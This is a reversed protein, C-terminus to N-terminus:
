KYWGDPLAEKEIEFLDHIIADADSISNIIPDTMFARRLLRRDQRVIAEVTLDHADIVQMQMARLGLPFEGAKRPRPGNMDIDCLLELFADAPLNSVADGNFTNIYFQKGNGTWMTEIVDVAHDSKYRSHFEDMSREGSIYRDIEDWMGAMQRQRLDADFISLPAPKEESVSKNQWFPVYEKTHDINTPIKGFLEWLMYAYTNNYSEKSDSSTGERLSLKRIGEAILGMVDEGDYRADLLWNFHNVGAITMDFRDIDANKIGTLNLYKEKVGPMHHTDCLAFSNVKSYRALGLGNIAVPNIYNIVWADPCLKEVDKAIDLIVPLERMARFIGGPGITDGSCMRVGYKLSIECDVGRFYIGKNSFSLIVFDAGKLAERYDCSGELKTDTGISDIAMRALKMMKDLYTRNTDVLSITGKSLAESHVVSWIFQRGFFMSGAGILVIKPGRM